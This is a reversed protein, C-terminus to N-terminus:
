EGKLQRNELWAKGRTFMCHVHFADREAVDTDATVVDLTGKKLYRINPPGLLPHDVFPEQCSGCLEM